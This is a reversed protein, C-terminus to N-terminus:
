FVVVNFSFLMGYYVFKFTKSSLINESSSQPIFKCKTQVSCSSQSVNTTVMIDESFTNNMQLFNKDHFNEKRNSSLLIADSSYV